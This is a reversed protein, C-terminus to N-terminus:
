KQGAGGMMLGSQSDLLQLAFYFLVGVVACFVIVRLARRWTAHRKRYIEAYGV